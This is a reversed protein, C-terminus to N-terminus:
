SFQVCCTFIICSLLSGVNAYKYLSLLDHPFVWFCTALHTKFNRFV